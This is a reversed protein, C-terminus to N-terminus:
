RKPTAGPARAATVDRSTAEGLGVRARGLATAISERGADLALMRALADGLERAPGSIERTHRDVVCLTGFLAGGPLVIPHGSYSEVGHRAALDEYGSGSASLNGHAPSAHGDLWRHCLAEPMPVIAGPEVPGQGSAAVIELDGGQIRTIFAQDWGMAARLEDLAGRCAAAFGGPAPDPGAAVPAEAAADDAVAGGAIAGAGVLRELAAM